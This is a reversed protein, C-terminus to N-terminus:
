NMSVGRAMLTRRQLEFNNVIGMLGMTDNSPDGDFLQNLIESKQNDTMLPPSIDMTRDLIEEVKSRINADGMIGSHEGSMAALKQGDSNNTAEAQQISTEIQDRFSQIMKDLAEKHYKNAADAQAKYREGIVRDLMQVAMRALILKRTDAGLQQITKLFDSILESTLENGAKTPKPSLDLSAALADAEAVAARSAQETEAQRRAFILRESLIETREQSLTNLNNNIPTMQEVYTQMHQVSSRNAQVVDQLAPAAVETMWRSREEPPLSMGESVLAQVGATAAQFTAASMVTTDSAMDPVTQLRPRRGTAPTAIPDSADSAPSNGQEPTSPLSSGNASADTNLDVSQPLIGQVLKKMPHSMLGTINDQLAGTQNAANVVTNTADTAESSIRRAVEKGVIPELRAIFEAPTAPFPKKTILDQLLPLKTEDGSRMLEETALNIAYTVSYQQIDEQTATGDLVKTRIGELNTISSQYFARVGPTTKPDNMKLKLSDIDSQMSTYLENRTTAAAALNQGIGMMNSEIRQMQLVQEPSLKGKSQLSKLKDYEVQMPKNIAETLQRAMETTLRPAGNENVGTIFQSVDGGTYGYSTRLVEKISNEYEKNNIIKELDKTAEDVNKSTTALKANHADLSNKFSTAALTKRDADTLETITNLINTHTEARTNGGLTPGMFQPNATAEATGQLKEVAEDLLASNLYPNVYGDSEKHTYLAQLLSLDQSRDSAKVSPNGILENGAGSLTKQTAVLSEYIFEKTNSSVLPDNLMQQANDIAAKIKPDEVKSLDTFLQDKAAAEVSSQTNALLTQGLDKPQTYSISSFSNYSFNNISGSTSFGLDLENAFLSQNGLINGTSFGTTLSSSSGLNTRIAGTTGLNTLDMSTFDGVNGTGLNSTSFGMNSTTISNPDFALNGLNLNGITSTTRIPTISRPLTVDGSYDLAFRSTSLLPTYNYTVRSKSADMSKLVSDLAAKDLDEPLGQGEATAQSTIAQRAQQVAKLQNELSTRTALPLDSQSQLLQSISNEAQQLEMSYTSTTEMFSKIDYKASELTNSYGSPALTDYAQKVGQLKDSDAPEALMGPYAQKTLVSLQNLQSITESSFTTAAFSNAKGELSDLITGMEKLGDEGINGFRKSFEEPHNKQLAVMENHLARSQKVATFLSGEQGEQTSTFPADALSKLQKNIEDASTPMEYRQAEVNAKPTEAISEIDQATKINAQVNRLVKSLAPDSAETYETEAGLRMWVEHLNDASPNSQYNKIAAKADLVRNTVLADFQTQYNESEPTIGQGALEAAADKKINALLQPDNNDLRSGLETLSSQLQQQAQKNETEFTSNLPATSTPTAGEGASASEPATESPITEPRLRLVREQKGGFFGSVGDQATMGVGQEFNLANAESDAAKLRQLNNAVVTSNTGFMGTHDLSNLLSKEEASITQDDALAAQELLGRLELVKAKDSSDVKGDEGLVDKILSQAQKSKITEAMQRSIYLNNSNDGSIPTSM